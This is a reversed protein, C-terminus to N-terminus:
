VKASMGWIAELNAGSPLRLLRNLFGHVEKKGSGCRVDNTSGVYIDGNTLELFYVYWM